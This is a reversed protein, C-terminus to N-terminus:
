TTSPGELDDTKGAGDFPTEVLAAGENRRVIIRDDSLVESMRVNLWLRTTTSKGAGSHGM